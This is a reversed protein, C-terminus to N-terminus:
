AAIESEYRLAAELQGDYSPLASIPPDRRLLLPVPTGLLSLESM